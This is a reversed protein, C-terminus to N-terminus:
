FSDYQRHQDNKKNLKIEQTSQQIPNNEARTTPIALIGLSLSSASLFHYVLHV